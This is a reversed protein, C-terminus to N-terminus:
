DNEMAELFAKIIASPLSEAESQYDASVGYTPSPSLARCVSWMGLDFYRSVSVTPLEETVLSELCKGAVRWDQLFSEADLYGRNRDLTYRPGQTFNQSEAIGREVLRACKEAHNM